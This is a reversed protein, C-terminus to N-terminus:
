QAWYGEDNKKVTIGQEREIRTGIQVNVTRTMSDPERDPFRKALKAVLQEKTIPATASAAKLFEVISKIVGTGKTGDTRKTGKTKAVTKPKTAPANTGPTKAAAKKATKPATAM